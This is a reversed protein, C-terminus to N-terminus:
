KLYDVLKSYMEELNKTPKWGLALLKDASLNWKHTPPYKKAADADINIQVSIANRAIKQAVMEAMEKITFGFIERMERIRLAVEYLKLNDATAM